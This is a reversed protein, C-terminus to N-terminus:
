DGRKLMTHLYSAIAVWLLVLLIYWYGSMEIIVLITIIGSTAIILVIEWFKAMQESTINYKQELVISVIWIINALPLFKVFILFTNLRDTKTIILLMPIYAVTLIVNLFVLSLVSKKNIM